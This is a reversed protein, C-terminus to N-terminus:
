NCGQITNNAYYNHWSPQVSVIPGIASLGDQPLAADILAQRLDTMVNSDGIWEFCGGDPVIGTMANYRTAYDSKGDLTNHYVVLRETTFEILVLSNTDPPMRWPP